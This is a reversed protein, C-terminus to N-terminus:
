ADRGALNRAQLDGHSRGSSAWGPTPLTGPPRSPVLPFRGPAAPRQVPEPTARFVKPKGCGRGAHGRASFVRSCIAVALAGAIVRPANQILTKVAIPPPCGRCPKEAQNSLPPKAVRAALRVMGGVGDLGDLGDLGGLGRLGSSGGLGDSGGLGVSGVSRALRVLRVLGVLGLLGLLGLLCSLGPLESLGLLGLLEVGGVLGASGVVDLLGVLGDLGDLGDL